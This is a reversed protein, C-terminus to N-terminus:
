EEKEGEDFPQKIRITKFKKPSVFKVYILASLITRCRKAIRDAKEKREIKAQIVEMSREELESIKEGLAIDQINIFMDFYNKM